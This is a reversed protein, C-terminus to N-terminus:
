LKSFFLDFISFLAVFSSGGFIIGKQVRESIGNYLKTPAVMYFFLPFVPFLYRYQCGNITDYGVPTFSVYLATSFLVIQVLCVLVSLFRTKGNVPEIGDAKKDYVTFVGFFLLVITLTGWIYHADGLYAYFALHHNTNLASVYGLLFEVLIKTYAIPHSLIFKVQETANVDGGGRSDTFADQRILMPSAIYAIYFLILLLGALLMKKRTKGDAFKKSPLFFFPLLLFIYIEKPGCGIFFVLLIKLVDHWEIQKDPQQFESIIYATGLAVWATVWYDCSFVSALFLVVPILGIVSFLYGGKKIVKVALAFVLMYTLANAMRALILLKIVDFCILDGVVFVLYSPLYGLYALPMAFFKTAEMDTQSNELIQFYYQYPSEVFDSISYFLGFTKLRTVSYPEVNKFPHVIDYARAFHIQEDWSILYPFAYAMFFCIAVGSVLFLQYPQDQQQDLIRYLLQFAIFLVSIWFAMLVTTRSVYSFLLMMAYFGFFIIYSCNSLLKPIRRFIGIKEFAFFNQFWNKVKLVWEFKKRFIIILGVAVVFAVFAAVNFRYARQGTENVYATLLSICSVIGLLLLVIGGSNRLKIKM